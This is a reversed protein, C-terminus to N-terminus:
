FRSRMIEGGNISSRVRALRERLGEVPLARARALGGIKDARVGFVDRRLAGGACWDGYEGASRDYWASCDLSMLGAAAVLSAILRVFAAETEKCEGEDMTV